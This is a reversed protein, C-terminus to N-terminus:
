ASEKIGCQELIVSTSSILYIMRVELLSECMNNYVEVCKRIYDVKDNPRSINIGSLRLDLILNKISHLLAKLKNRMETSDIYKRYYYLCTHAFLEKNGESASEVSRVWNPEPSQLLKEYLESENEDYDMWVDQRYWVEIWYGLQQLLCIQSDKAARLLHEELGYKENLVEIADKKKYLKRYHFWSDRYNTICEEPYYLGMIEYLRHIFEFQEGFTAIEEACEEKIREIDQSELVLERKM